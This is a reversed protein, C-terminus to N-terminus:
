VYGVGFVVTPNHIEGVCEIRVNQFQEELLVQLGRPTFRWYDPQNVKEHIGVRFPVSVVAIGGQRLVRKIERIVPRPDRVHELLETCLVCGITESGIVSMDEAKACHDPGVAKNSDVTIVDVDPFIALIEARHSKYGCGVDLIPGTVKSGALFRHVFDRIASRNPTVYQARYDRRGEFASLVHDYGYTNILAYVHAAACSPVWEAKHAILHACVVEPIFELTGLSSYEFRDKAQLAARGLLEEATQDLMVIGVLVPQLFRVDQVLALIHVQEASIKIGLEEEAERVVTIRPDPLGDPGEDKRTEALGRSISANMGTVYGRDYSFTRRSRIACILRNDPRTVVAANVGIQNALVSHRFDDLMPKYKIRPTLRKAGQPICEVDLSFNTAIHDFYSTPQLRLILRKTETVPNTVELDYERLGYHLGDYVLAGEDRRKLASQILENRAHLLALPQRYPEQDLETRIDLPTVGDGVLTAVDFKISGFRLLSISDEIIPAEAIAGTHLQLEMSTFVQQQHLLELFAQDDNLRDRNDKTDNLYLFIKEKKRRFVENCRNEWVPLGAASSRDAGACFTFWPIGSRSEDPIHTVLYDPEPFFGECDSTDWTVADLEGDPLQLMDQIILIGQRVLFRDLHFLTLAIEALPIEHLVNRLIIVAIPQRFAGPNRQFFRGRALFEPQPERDFAGVRMGCEIAKIPTLLDIASYQHGGQHFQPLSHVAEIVAGDGCGYDLITIPSDCVDLYHALYGKLLQLQPDGKVGSTQVSPPGRLGELYRAIKTQDRAGHTM